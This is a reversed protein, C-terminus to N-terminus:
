WWTVGGEGDESHSVSHSRGSPADGTAFLGDMIEAGETMVPRLQKRYVTETVSTGSHGVLQAIRELPVGADSLLSVFSHRLERPTWQTPDLGALKVVQRFARRVNAADLETGVKSSFVLNHEQWRDGAETRERQQRVAHAQLVAVCRRPLGLTRRSRRTKTDGGARVSRWVALSPPIPPVSTPDGVLDVHDWTLARLEETRAGTLLALVVYAHLRTEGAVALVARAQDFTLSKSPRGERGKPVDCLLAVNRKVQDRAQARAISRRLISHIDRLSRTSLDQAKAALWRDVDDATLDRLRRAGLDPIVHVNALITRTKLTSPDRGTLGYSLWSRVAYAVTHDDRVVPLGDELDRLVEKLKQKAETKTRGSGKKVIRKGNPRFGLQATAIWRQRAEDWHLGGDGRSRRKAM